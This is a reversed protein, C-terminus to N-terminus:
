RRTPSGPRPTTVGPRSIARGANWRAKYCHGGPTRLAGHPDLFRIGDAWWHEGDAQVFATRGTLPNVSISKVGPAHGLEPHSVFQLEDRDFLFAGSNVTVSLLPTKPVPQLDHGGAAPLRFTASRVLSPADSSWDRLEYERLEDAGLAWVRERRADWVVGHAWPLEDTFLAEEPRDLDFVLLRNGGEAGSSAVALRGCPLLEASHANPVSTWFGVDGTAREVLAIGDTSSTILISEGGNVPKCEDTTRFQGAAEPITDKAKWSWVKERGPPRLIFVEDWGCVILEGAYEDGPRADPTAKTM